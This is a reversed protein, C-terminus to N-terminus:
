SLRPRIAMAWAAMKDTNAEATTFTAYGDVTLNATSSAGADWGATKTIANASTSV